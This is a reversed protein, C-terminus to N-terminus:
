LSFLKEIEGKFLILLLYDFSQFYINRYIYIYIKFYNTDM